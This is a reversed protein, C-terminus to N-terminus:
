ILNTTSLTAISQAMLEQIISWLFPLGAESYEAARQREDGCTLGHTRECLFKYQSVAGQWGGLLLQKKQRQLFPQLVSLQATLLGSPNKQQPQLHLIFLEPTFGLPAGPSQHVSGWTPALHLCYWVSSVCWSFSGCLFFEGTNFQM